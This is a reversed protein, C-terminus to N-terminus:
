DIRYYVVGTSGSLRDSFTGQTTTLLEGGVGARPSNSRYVRHPRGGNSINFVVEGGVKSGQVLLVGTEARESVDQGAFWPLGLGLVLAPLVAAYAVRAAPMFLRALPQMTKTESGSRARALLTARAGTSLREAADSVQEVGRWDRLAAALPDNKLTKEKKKWM